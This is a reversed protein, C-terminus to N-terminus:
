LSSIIEDALGFEIAESATFYTDKSTKEYVEELTKGTHKSIISGLIERTKMIDNSHQMITLAPGTISGAALPDHIMVRSHPLMRRTDASMFLISGMSAAIGCCVTTIPCSIAQMVDYLALGSDVDGGPSNIYMTIPADPNEKELHLLQIILSNVTQRNIESVCLVERRSLMEDQISFPCLGNSTERLIAPTIITNTTNEM